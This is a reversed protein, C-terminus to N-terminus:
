SQFSMPLKHENLLPPDVNGRPSVLCWVASLLVEVLLLHREELHREERPRRAPYM